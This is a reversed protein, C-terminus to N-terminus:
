ALYCSASEWQEQHTPLSDAQIAPSTKLSQSTCSLTFSKCGRAHVNVDAHDGVLTSCSPSGYYLMCCNGRTHYIDNELTPHKTTLGCAAAVCALLEPVQYIYLMLLIALTCIRASTCQMSAQTVLLNANHHPHVRHAQKRFVHMARM